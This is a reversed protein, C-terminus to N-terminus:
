SNRFVFWFSRLVGWKRLVFWSFNTNEKIVGYVEEGNEVKELGLRVGGEM